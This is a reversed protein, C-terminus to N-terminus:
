ETLSSWRFSKLDVLGVFRSCRPATQKVPWRLIKRMFFRLGNIAADTRRMATCFPSVRAATCGTEEQLERRAAQGLTEGADAAGSPIAWVYEDVIFRYQRILLIETGRAALIGVAPRQFTVTYYTREGADGVEVQQQVISFYPNAHAEKSTLVQWPKKPIPSLDVM